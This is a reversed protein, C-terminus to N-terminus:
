LTARAMPPAVRSYYGSRSATEVYLNREANVAVGVKRPNNKLNSHGLPKPGAGNAILAHDCASKSSGQLAAETRM